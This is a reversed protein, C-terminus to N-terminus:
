GESAQLPIDNHHYKASAKINKYAFEPLEIYAELTESNAALPNTFGQVTPLQKLTSYNISSYKQIKNKTVPSENNIHITAVPSGTNIIMNNLLPTPPYNGQLIDDKAEPPSCITILTTHNNNEEEAAHNSNP